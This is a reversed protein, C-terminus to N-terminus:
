NTNSRRGKNAKIGMARSKGERKHEEKHPYYRKYKKESEKKQNKHVIFTVLPWQLIEFEEPVPVEIL